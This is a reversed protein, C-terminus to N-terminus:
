IDNLQRGFLGDKLFGRARFLLRNKDSFSTRGHLVRNNNCILIDGPGLDLHVVDESEEIAAAIKNGLPLLGRRSNVLNNLKWSVKGDPDLIAREISSRYGVVAQFSSPVQWSWIKSRALEIEDASLGFNLLSKEVNEVRLLRTTGGDAAPRACALIFIDPPNNLYQCDTHLPANGVNSSFSASDSRWMVPWIEQGAGHGGWDAITHLDSFHGAQLDVVLRPWHLKAWGERAVTGLASFLDHTM